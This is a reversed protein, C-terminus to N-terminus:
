YQDDDGLHIIKSGKWTRARNKVSQPNPHRKGDYGVGIQEVVMLDFKGLNKSLLTIDHMSLELVCARVQVHIWASM